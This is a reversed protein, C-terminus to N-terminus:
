DGHAVKDLVDPLEGFKISESLISTEDRPFLKRHVSFIEEVFQRMERHTLLKLWEKINDSRHQAVFTPISLENLADEIEDQRRPAYPSAGHSVGNGIVRPLQFERESM